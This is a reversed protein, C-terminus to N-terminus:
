KDDSGVEVSPRTKIGMSVEQNLFELKITTLGILVEAKFNLNKPLHTIWFMHFPAAVDMIGERYKRAEETAPTRSGEVQDVLIKSDIFVHLDKMGKGASSVLGALLAKYDMNHDPSDFSLRIVYSYMKGDLGFLIMRVGSGEKGAERSLHLRWARPTLTIVAQLKNSQRLAGEEKGKLMHPLLEKAQITALDPRIGDETVTYGLFRGEKMEFTSENPDIKMNVWKLKNLTEEVDKILSQEDKSKVFIEELYIEVNQGKQNALVKEVM